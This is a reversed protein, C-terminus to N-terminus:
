ESLLDIHECLYERAWPQLNYAFGSFMNGVQSSMYIIKKAVLGGAIGDQISFYLTNKGQLIFPQLYTKEDPTLQHLSKQLLEIRKRETNKIYINNVKRRVINILFFIVYSCLLSLSFIFILAINGANRQRFDLLSLFSLVKQNLFLLAASFLTMGLLSVPTVVKLLNFFSTLEM